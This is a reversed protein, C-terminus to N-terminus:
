RGCPLWATDRLILVLHKKLVRIAASLSWFVISLTFAILVLAFAVATLLFFGLVAWEFPTMDGSLAHDRLLILQPWFVYVTAAVGGVRAIVSLAKDSM